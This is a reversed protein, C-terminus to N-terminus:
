SEESLTGKGSGATVVIKKLEQTLIERRKDWWAVADHKSLEVWFWERADNAASVDMSFEVWVDLLKGLQRVGEPSYRALVFSMWSDLLGLSNAQDRTRVTLLKAREALVNWLNSPAGAVFRQYSLFAQQPLSDSCDDPPCVFYFNVHRRKMLDLMKNRVDPNEGSVFPRGTKLIWVEECLDERKFIHDLDKISNEPKVPQGEEFFYSPKVGFKQAIEEITGPWPRVGITSEWNQITKVGKQLLRAAARQTLGRKERLARFRNAFIGVKALATGDRRGVRKKAKKRGM